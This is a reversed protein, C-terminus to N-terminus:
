WSERNPACQSKLAALIGVPIGILAAGLVSLLSLEMSVPFAALVDDRIPRGTLPSVGFDGQVALLLWNGFRLFFPDDLGLEARVRALNEETAGEVGTLQLAVDGPIIIAMTFVLFAVALLVLFFDSVRLLVSKSSM